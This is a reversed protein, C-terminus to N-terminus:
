NEIGAKTVKLRSGILYLQKRGTEDMYLYVPTTHDHYYICTQGDGGGHLKDSEYEIRVARGLRILKKPQHFKINQRFRPTRGHFQRYRNVANRM